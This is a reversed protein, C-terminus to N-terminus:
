VARKHQYYWQLQQVNSDQDVNEQAILGQAEAPSLIEKLKWRNGQRGFTLIQEFPTVDEDQQAVNGRRRLIKQAHARVRALYEDRSNDTFNRVLILEVKRVCLNRFELGIGQAQNDAIQKRLDDALEPFLDGAPVNAPEGSEWAGTLAVFVRRATDLMTRRNWIKDTQVLFNLMREIRTDKTEADKELWPGAPGEKEHTLVQRVTATVVSGDATFALLADGPVIRSIPVETGDAKRIPTEPLFCGKNHVIVGAAVYTGGPAVLLNFAPSAAPVRRVSDVTGIRIADRDRLCVKDGPRLFGAMRFVGPETEIPHTDTLRLVRGEVAIECYTEPALLPLGLPLGPGLYARSVAANFIDAHADRGDTLGARRHNRGLNTHFIGM